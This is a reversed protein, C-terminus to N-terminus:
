SKDNAYSIQLSVGTPGGRAAVNAPLWYNTTVTYNEHFYKSYINPLGEIVCHMVDGEGANHFGACYFASTSAM